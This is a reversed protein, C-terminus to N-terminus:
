DDVFITEYEELRRRQLQSLVKGRYRCHALYSEKIDRNGNLLKKYVSSKAVVGIGCNYALTALILSDKGFSRYRGCLKALDNRLLEDAKKESLNTNRKYNEGPLIKHGYGILQGKNRHLGEYKKIVRIANDFEQSYIRGYPIAGSFFFCVFFGIIFLCLVQFLHRLKKTVKLKSVQKRKM